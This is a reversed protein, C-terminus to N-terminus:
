LIPPSKDPHLLAVAVVDDVRLIPIDGTSLDITLRWGGDKLSAVKWVSGTYAIEGNENM